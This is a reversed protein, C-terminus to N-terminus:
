FNSIRLLNDLVVSVQVIALVHTYCDHYTYQDSYFHIYYHLEEDQLNHSLNPFSLKFM